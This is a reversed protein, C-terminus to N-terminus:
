FVFDQNCFAYSNTNHEFDIIIIMKYRIDIAQVHIQTYFNLLFIFFIISM